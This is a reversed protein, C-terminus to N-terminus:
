AKKMSLSIRKREKDVSLVRVMVQQRVRVVEAPDKIFRDSLESIHILGDQHVGIDAFAGFKTVNTIIAPIVMDPHLDEISNIAEAFTFTEFQARPDRGPKELETMIDLLTPLGVEDTIYSSVEIKDRLNASSMLEKLSLKYDAAMQEVLRYREPHVGSADLPYTSNSIRLFGAAQEFAAAGLRPVKHLEKRTTFPGHSERYAIINKALMPGLGSVHTLLEASASNLEVGVRNVCLSVVEDLATKLAKQNVDHQYQGVGISKPDIKVLEALPDQLRRGISVSGRVTLDHDPFEARGIESASYISAGDENVLTILIEEPLDCARVFQETERSATGNGIAIAEIQHNKVLRHLTQQAQEQQKPGHTPYITTSELLAGQADLCVLKAGTRFGPDLALVRKQGLPPALLLERLNNSFVEIAELDAQEKLEKRFETELAPAILRKYGDEIAQEIQARAPSQKLHIRYLIELARKDDPRISVSLLKESEGRFLALLRHGPVRSVPESWAFYDNYKQANHQNKKVVRSNIVGKKRFLTRLQERSYQHESIQEAIIDLAGALAEEKSIQQDLSRLHVSLDLANPQQRFLLMALPELGKERAQMARTRRKPRYPLYIDELVTLNETQEIKALLQDTLQQSKELSDIITAKRKALEHLRTIEKQISSLSVEDLSGTMEKRYRAIFPITAGQEFLLASNKVQEPKMGGERAIRQCQSNTLSM